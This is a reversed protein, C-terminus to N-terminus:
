VISHSNEKAARGELLSRASQASGNPHERLELFNALVSLTMIM